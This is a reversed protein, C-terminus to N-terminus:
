PEDRERRDLPTVHHINEHNDKKVAWVHSCEACHYYYYLVASIAGSSDLLRPGSSNNCRPCVVIQRM